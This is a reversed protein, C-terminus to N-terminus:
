DEWGTAGEGAQVPPGSLIYPQLTPGQSSTVGLQDVVPKDVQASVPIVEVEVPLVMPPHWQWGNSAEISPGGLPTYEIHVNQSAHCAMPAAIVGVALALTM